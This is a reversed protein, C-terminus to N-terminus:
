ERAIFSLLNLIIPPLYAINKTTFFVSKVVHAIINSVAKLGDYIKNEVDCLKIKTM